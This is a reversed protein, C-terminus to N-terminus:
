GNRTLQVNRLVSVADSVDMSSKCLAEVEDVLLIPTGIVHSLSHTLLYHILFCILNKFITVIPQSLSLVFSDIQSTRIQNENNFSLYLPKILDRAKTTTTTTTSSMGTTYKVKDSFASIKGQIVYSIFLPPTIYNL